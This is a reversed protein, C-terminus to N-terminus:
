AHAAEKQQTYDTYSNIKERLFEEFNFGDDSLAANAEVRATLMNQDYTHFSPEFAEEKSNQYEEYATPNISPNNIPHSLIEVISEFHGSGDSAYVLHAPYGIWYDALKELNLNNEM